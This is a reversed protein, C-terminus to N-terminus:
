QKRIESLDKREQTKQYNIYNVPKSLDFVMFYPEPIEASQVKYVNLIRDARLARETALIKVKASELVYKEEALTMLVYPSSLANGDGSKLVSKILGDIVWSFMQPDGYIENQLSLSLAQAVVEINGMHAYLVANYDKHALEKEPEGGANLMEYAYSLLQAKATSGEPDYLNSASYYVRFLEFNFRTREGNIIRSVMKQYRPGTLFEGYKNMSFNVKPVLNEQKQAQASVSLALIIFIFLFLRFIERM